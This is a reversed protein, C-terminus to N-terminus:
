FCSGTLRRLWNLGSLDSFCVLLVFGAIVDHKHRNKKLSIMRPFLTGIALQRSVFTIEYLTYMARYATGYRNWIWM